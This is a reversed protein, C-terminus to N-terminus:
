ALEVIWETAAELAERPVLGASFDEGGEVKLWVPPADLARREVDGWGGPLPEAAGARELVLTRALPPRDLVGLGLAALDAVLADSFPFGMLERGEGPRARAFSGALWRAHGAELEALHAAGDVVPEWLCLAHAGEVRPAAHVALNAGLRLGLLAVREVDAGEALERAATAVDDLWGAVRADAFEGASDGTGGYDFRLTAVGAQALRRALQVFARHARLAEQGVAPCLLAGLERAPEAPPHFVGYLERGPEGFFFPQM